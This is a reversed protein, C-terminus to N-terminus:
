RHAIKIDCFPCRPASGSVNQAKIVIKCDKEHVSCMETCVDKPSTRIQSQLMQEKDLLQHNRMPKPLTHIKFCQACLYDQCDICMGVAERLNGDDLCPQCKLQDLDESGVSGPCQGQVEGGTAM